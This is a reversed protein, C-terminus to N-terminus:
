RKNVREMQERMERAAAGDIRWSMGERYYVGEWGHFWTVGNRVVMPAPEPVAEWPRAKFGRVRM